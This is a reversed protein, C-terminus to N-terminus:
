NNDKTTTQRGEGGRRGDGPAQRQRQLPRTLIGPGSAQRYMHRGSPQRTCTNHSTKTAAQHRAPRKGAPPKGRHHPGRANTCTDGTSRLVSQTCTTYSSGPAWTGSNWLGAARLERRCTTKCKWWRQWGSGAARCRVPSACGAAERQTMQVRHGPYRCRQKASAQERPVHVELQELSIGRHCYPIGIITCRCSSTVCWVVGAPLVSRRQRQAPGPAPRLRRAQLVGAEAGLSRARHFSLGAAPWLGQSAGPPQGPSGWVALACAV